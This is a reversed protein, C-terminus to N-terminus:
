KRIGSAIRTAEEITFDGSIIARAGTIKERVIPASLVEGDVVIAIPKMLNQETVLAFRRTGDRTFTIEVNAAYPTKTARASAVDENSLLVQESLYVKQTSGKVANETMGPTQDYSAPRFELQVRPAAPPPTSCGSLTAVLGMLLLKKM